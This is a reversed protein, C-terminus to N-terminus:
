PLVPVSVKKEQVGEWAPLIKKVIEAIDMNREM